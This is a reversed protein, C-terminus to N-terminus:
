LKLKNPFDVFLSQKVCCILVVNLPLGELKVPIPPAKLGVFIVDLIPRGDPLTSSKWSRVTAKEGNTVNLETANNGKLLVPM